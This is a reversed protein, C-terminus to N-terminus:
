AAKRRNQTSAPQAVPKDVDRHLLRDRLVITPREVAFYFILSFVLTGLLIVSSKVPGRPWADVLVRLDTLLLTHLLYISYSVIALGHIASRGLRALPAVSTWRLDYAVRLWGSYGIAYLLFVVSRFGLPQDPHTFQYALLVLPLVSAVMAPKRLGLWLSPRDVFLSALWVGLILGECHLHSRWYWNAPLTGTAAAISRLLQPILALVPLLVPLSRRAVLHPILLGLLPLALYFHEEVCLSWSPGFGDVGLYNQLFVLYDLHVANNHFLRQAVAFLALAALYPPLTRLWRASWFGFLTFTGPRTEADAQARLYIRGILFGSLVFFLDVGVGLPALASVAHSLCVMLIALARALDLGLNRKLNM